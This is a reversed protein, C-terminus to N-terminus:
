VLEAWYRRQNHQPVSEIFRFTETFLGKMHEAVMQETWVSYHPPALGAELNVEFYLRGGPELVRRIEELVTRSNPSHDIVNQCIVFNFAENAWPFRGEGGVQMKRHLSEALGHSKLILNYYDALPDMAMIFKPSCEYVSVCGCGVELGGGTQDKWSPWYKTKDYYEAARYAIYYEGHAAVLDRWFDLEANQQPALRNDM